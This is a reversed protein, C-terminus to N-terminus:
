GNNKVLKYQSGDRIINYRFKKLDEPKLSKAHDHSYLKQVKQWQYIQAERPKGRGRRIEIALAPTRGTKEAWETLIPIQHGKNNKSFDSKFNLRDSYEMKRSKCEIALYGIEPSDVIVDVIQSQYRSQKRRYALGTIKNEEFYNNFAHVVEREFETM